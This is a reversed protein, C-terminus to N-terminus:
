FQLIRKCTNMHYTGWCHNLGIKFAECIFIIFSALWLVKLKYKLLLAQNVQQDQNYFFYLSKL